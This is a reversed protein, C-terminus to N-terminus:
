ETTDVRDGDHVDCESANCTTVVCRPIRTTWGLTKQREFIRNAIKGDDYTSPPYGRLLSQLFTAIVADYHGCTRAKKDEHLRIMTQMCGCCKHSSDDSTGSAAAPPEARSPTGKDVGTSETEGSAATATTTAGDDSAANVSFMIGAISSPTTSSTVEKMARFLEYEEPTMTKQVDDM